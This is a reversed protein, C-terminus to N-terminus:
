SFYDRVVEQRIQGVLYFSGFALILESSDTLDLAVQLAKLVDKEVVTDAGLKKLKLNLDGAPLKRDNHPETVVVKGFYGKMIELVEDVDKDGLMGILITPKCGRPLIMELSKALAKAGHPNHAGDLIIKPTSDVVELRCPWKTAELGKLIAEEPVHKKYERNLVGVATMAVVANQAQHTGIMSIRYPHVGLTFVTGELSMQTVDILDVPAVIMTASKEEALEKLVKSAQPEQPHIVLPVNEKIIGGKEFAVKELTDGLINVHDLAIPTIVSVLPKDVVNTADLRGGLGVELVVFDVSQRKFHLFAMATFIEFETNPDFGEEVLEDVANKVDSAVAAFDDQDILGNNIQIREELAYLSPSTYFGVRYGAHMLISKIYSATSGKGNTGAIHIVELDNQPNGLKALLRKIADLGPKIGFKETSEIFKIAEAYTM